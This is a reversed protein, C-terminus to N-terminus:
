PDASEDLRAAQYAGGVVDASGEADGVAVMRDEHAVGADQGVEELFAAPDDRLAPERVVAAEGRGLNEGLVVLVVHRGLGGFGELAGAMGDAACRSCLRLVWSCR